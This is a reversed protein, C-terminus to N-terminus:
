PPPSQPSDHHASASALLRAAVQGAQEEAPPPTGMPAGSSRALAMGQYGGWPDGQMWPDGEASDSSLIVNRAEWKDRATNWELEYTVEDGPNVSGKNRLQSVHLFVDPGEPESSSGPIIFGFGKRDNYSRLRGTFRNDPRAATPGPVQVVATEVSEAEEPQEQSSAADAQAASPQESSTLAPPTIFDDGCDTASPVAPLAEISQGSLTTTVKTEQMATFFHGISPGSTLGAFRSSMGDLVGGAMM